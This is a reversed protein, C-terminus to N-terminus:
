MPDPNHGLLPRADREIDELITPASKEMVTSQRETVVTEKFLDIFKVELVSIVPMIDTVFCSVVMIILQNFDTSELNDLSLMITFYSLVAKVIFALGWLLFLKSIYKVNQLHQPSKYPLGSQKIYYVLVTIFFWVVISLWSGMFLYKLVGKESFYDGGRVVIEFIYYSNIAIFACILVISIGVLFRNLISKELDIIYLSASVSSTRSM